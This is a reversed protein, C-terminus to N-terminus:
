RGLHHSASRIDRIYQDTENLGRVSGIEYFRRDVEYGAMAGSQVLSAMVDALDTPSDSPVGDLVSRRMILLGYDIHQMAPDDTTKDYLAIRGDEFLVNSSDWRGANRYVTMLAPRDSLEFADWIPRLDIDLYSDGYVVFFVDGLLPLAKTLAGATGLLTPGDFSCSVVLGFASGDGVFQQVAAGLHGLCLVARDLGQRDFLRLQHAIFPEDAVELMSKPVTETMPRMRTALGGALVAIPPLASV